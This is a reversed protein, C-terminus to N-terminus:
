LEYRHLELVLYPLATFNYYFIAIDLMRSGPVARHHTFHRRLYARIASHKFTYQAVNQAERYDALIKTYNRSM